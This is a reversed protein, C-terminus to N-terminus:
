NRRRYMVYERPMEGVWKPPSTITRIEYNGSDIKKQLKHRENSTMHSVPKSYANKYGSRRLAKRKREYRRQMGASARRDVRVKGSRKPKQEHNSLSVSKVPKSRRFWRM